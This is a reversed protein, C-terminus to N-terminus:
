RPWPLDPLPVSLEMDGSEQFVELPTTDIKMLLEAHARIFRQLQEGTFQEPVDATTNRLASIGTLTMAPVREGAMRVAGPIQELFSPTQTIVPSLQYQQVISQCYQGLRANGNSIWLLRPIDNMTTLNRNMLFRTDSGVPNDLNILVAVNDWSIDPSDLFVEMGPNGTNDGGLGVFLYSKERFEDPINEIFDALGLLGALGAANGTAGTFQSAMSATVIVVSPTTGPLWATINYTHTTPEPEQAFEMNVWIPLRSQSQLLYEYIQEGDERGITFAPVQREADMPFFLPLSAMYNGPTDLTILVGIAGNEVARQYAGIAGTHLGVGQLTRSEILVIKERVDQHLFDIASGAGIYALEGRIRTAQQGTDMPLVVPFASSLMTRNGADEVDAPAHVSWHAPYTREWPIREMAIEDYGAGALRQQLYDATEHDADSGTIRGWYLTRMKSSDAIVILDQVYEMLTETSIAQVGSSWVKQAATQQAFLAAPFMWMMLCLLAGYKSFMKVSVPEEEPSPTSEYSQRPM